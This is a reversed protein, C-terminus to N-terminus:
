AKAPEAAIAQEAHGSSPLFALRVPAKAVAVVLVGKAVVFPKWNEIIPM